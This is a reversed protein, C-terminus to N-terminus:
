NVVYITALLFTHHLFFFCRLTHWVWTRGVHRGLDFVNFFFGEKCFFNSHRSRKVCFVRFESEDEGLIRTENWLQAGGVLRLADLDAFSAAPAEPKILSTPPPEMMPIGLIAPIYPNTLSFGMLYHPNM